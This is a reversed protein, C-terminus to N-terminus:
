QDEGEAALVIGRRIRSGDAGRGADYGKRGLALGLVKRSTEPAGDAEAWKVWRSWLEGARVYGHPTVICEDAIFRAVPDSDLQYATTAVQVATPEDLGGRGSYDHWGAVAWSM